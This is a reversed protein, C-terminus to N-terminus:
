GNLIGRWFLDNEYRTETGDNHTVNNIIKMVDGEFETTTTIDKVAKIDVLFELAASARSRVDNLADRDALDRSSLWITSGIQEGDILSYEDGWWGRKDQGSGPLVDDDSARRDTFLAAEIILGLGRDSQVIQDIPAPPPTPPQSIIVDSSFSASYANDIAIIPDFTDTKVVINDFRLANNVFTIHEVAFYKGTPIDTDTKNLKQLGDIKLIFTDGDASIEFAYTLSNDITFNDAVINIAEGAVTKNIQLTETGGGPRFSFDMYNNDDTKRFQVRGRNNEGGPNITGSIIQNDSGAYGKLRSGNADFRVANGQLDVLGNVEYGLGSQDEDPTRDSILDGDTGAFTDSLRTTFPTAAAAIGLAGKHPTASTGFFVDEGDGWTHTTTLTIQHTSYDIASIIKPTTGIVISDGPEGAIGYMDTFWMADDVTVIASAAGTGNTLTLRGGSQYAPSTTKIRFDLLNHDGNVTSSANEFDPSSTIASNADHGTSSKWTAFDPYTWVGSALIGFTPAGSVAVYLNNDLDITGSGTQFGVEFKSHYGVINNRFGNYSGLLYSHGFGKFSDNSTWPSNSGNIADRTNNLITNNYYHQNTNKTQIIIANMNDYLVTFRVIWRESTRGTTTCKVAGPSSRDGGDLLGDNDGASGYVYSYELVIDITNKGDFTNEGGWAMICNRYVMQGVLGGVSEMQVTDSVYSNKFTCNKVLTKFNLTGTSSYGTTFNGHGAYDCKYGDVVANLSGDQLALGNYPVQNNVVNKIKLNAGNSAIGSVWRWGGSFTDRLTQWDSHGQITVNNLTNNAGVTKIRYQLGDGPTNTANIGIGDWTVYDGSIYLTEVDVGNGSANVVDGTKAVFNIEDSSTGNNALSLKEAYTGASVQGVNGALTIAVLAAITLKANLESLGDNSDSGSKTTFRDPILMLKGM